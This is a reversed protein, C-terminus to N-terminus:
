LNLDPMATKQLAKSNEKKDPRILVAQQEKELGLVNRLEAKSMTYDKNFEKDSFLLTALLAGALRGAEVDSPYHVGGIVRNWGFEWGRSLIESRKEPVMDALLLAMLAGAMAHGSPYSANGPVKVCPKVKPDENSPRLRKWFDKAPESVAKSTALVRVFLADTLPLKTPEFQPGLVNAFRFVSVEQDAIAENVQTQSRKAQINLIEALDARNQESDKAPPPLLRTLDVKTLSEYPQTKNESALLHSILLLLTVPILLALRINRIM